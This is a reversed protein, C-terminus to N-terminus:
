LEWSTFRTWKALLTRTAFLISQTIKLSCNVPATPPNAGRSVHGSSQTWSASSNSCARWNIVTAIFFLSGWCVDQIHGPQPSFISGWNVWHQCHSVSCIFISIQYLYIYLSWKLIIGCQPDVTAYTIFLTLTINICVYNINRLLWLISFHCSQLSGCRDTYRYM